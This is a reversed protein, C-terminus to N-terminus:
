GSDFVVRAPIQNDNFWSSMSFPILSDAAQKPEQM